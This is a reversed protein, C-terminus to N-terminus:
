GASNLSNTTQDRRERENRRRAKETTTKSPIRAAHKRALAPTLDTRKDLSVLMMVMMTLTFLCGLM